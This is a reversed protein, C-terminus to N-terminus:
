PLRAWLSSLSIDNNLSLYIGVAIVVLVIAHVIWGLFSFVAYVLAATALTVVFKQIIPEINTITKLQMQKGVVDTEVKSIETNTVQTAKTADGFIKAFLDHFDGIQKNVTMVQTQKNYEDKVDGVVKDRNQDLPTVTNLISSYDPNGVRNFINGVSGSTSSTMWLQKTSPDATMYLPLYGQTNVPVTKNTSCDGVCESVRSNNDIIFLGQQDLDGVLSKVATGALGSVPAWGTQLTEDSKMAKGTGDVGYLATASSSTIKVSTDAVPMSNTMNVPKPIKVKQNTASQLWIYTHTSFINVPAFTPNGVPNMSWDTQNNATKTALFTASGNSFLMYVNTEDTVIDLITVNAPPPPPPCRAIPIFTGSKSADQAPTDNEALNGLTPDQDWVTFVKGNPNTWSFIGRCGTNKACLAKAGDLSTSVYNPNNNGFQALYQHWPTPYFFNRPSTTVPTGYCGTQQTQTPSLKSLNVETWQGTCPQQCVYVKNVSNFGWLYGAQSSSAKVLSGPINAWQQVSSLQTTLTTNIGSTNTDFASQFDTM